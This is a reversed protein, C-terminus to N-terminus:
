SPNTWSARNPATVRVSVSDEGCRHQAVVAVDGAELFVAVEHSQRLAAADIQALGIGRHGHM